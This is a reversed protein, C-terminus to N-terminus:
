TVCLIDTSFGPHKQLIILPVILLSFLLLSGFYDCIPRSIGDIWISGTSILVELFLFPEM